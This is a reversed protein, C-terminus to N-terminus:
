IRQKPRELILRGKKKLRWVNGEFQFIAPSELKVNFYVAKPDFNPCIFVRDVANEKFESYRLPKDFRPVFAYETSDLKIAYFYFRGANM